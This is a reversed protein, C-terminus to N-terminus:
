CAPLSGEARRALEARGAPSRLVGPPRATRRGCGVNREGHPDVINGVARERGGQEGLSRCSTLLGRVGRGAPLRAQAAPEPLARRPYRPCSCPWRSLLRRRCRRDGPLRPILRRSWLRGHGRSGVDRSACRPCGAANADSEARLDPLGAERGAQALLRGSGGNADRARLESADFAGLDGAERDLLGAPRCGRHAQLKDRATVRIAIWNAVGAVKAKQIAEAGAQGCRTEPLDFHWHWNGAVTPCPIGDHGHGRRPDADFGLSPKAINLSKNSPDLQLSPVPVDAIDHQEDGVRPRVPAREVLM